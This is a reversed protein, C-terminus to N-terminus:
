LLQSTAPELQANCVSHILKIKLKIIEIKKQVTRTSSFIAELMHLPLEM